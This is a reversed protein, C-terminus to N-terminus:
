PTRSEEEHDSRLEALEGPWLHGPLPEQDYGECDSDCRDAAIARPVSRGRPAKLKHCVRCTPVSECDKTCCAFIWTKSMGEGVRM